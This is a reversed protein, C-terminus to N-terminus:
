SQSGAASDEPLLENPGAQVNLSIGADCRSTWFLCVRLSAATPESYPMVLRAM